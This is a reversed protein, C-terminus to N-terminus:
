EAVEQIGEGNSRFYKGKTWKNIPHPARMNESPTEASAMAVGQIRWQSPNVIYFISM